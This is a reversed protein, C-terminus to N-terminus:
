GTQGIETFWYKYLQARIYHPPRANFPYLSEDNQVLRVVAFVFIITLVGYLKYGGCKFSFKPCITLGQLPARWVQGSYAPSKWCSALDNTDKPRRNIKRYRFGLTAGDSNRPVRPVSVAGMALWLLSLLSAREEQSWPCVPLLTLKPM